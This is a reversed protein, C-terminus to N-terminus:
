SRLATVPDVRAARWAPHVGFLLGIGISLAAAWALAGGLPAPPLRQWWTVAHTGGLGLLAGMMGGGAAVLLAEALFQLLIDRRSAGVSRRVGIERRREAVGILMLSMIVVGGILMALLAVGTLVRGLLSGMETVRAFSARPDILTFDDPAAAALRHRRRLLQRLESMVAASAAPDRLQAIAMTLFDRNFLRRSATTVPIFLLDDLSAGAPGAGLPRLVGVVQFPVDAVRITRGLPAAADEGPFLDAAAGAGLVAVRALAAVDDDSFFGGAAVEEDRLAPWNASVGFISPTATRDRWRVDIDFANQVLAVRAVGPVEAAMARADEFRLSPEVNALSPMGRSRNAGPRVIVTDFTGVMRKFRRMTERRTSEGVSQLATLSAIGILVGLMMLLSRLRNRSVSRWALRLGRLIEM